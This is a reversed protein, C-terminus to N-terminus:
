EFEGNCEIIRTIFEKPKLENVMILDYNHLLQATNILCYNNRRAVDICERSFSKNRENPPLHRFPNAILIGKKNREKDEVLQIHDMLQRALDVDVLGNSARVEAIFIESKGRIEIDHLGNEEKWDVIYGEDKLMQELLNACEKSLSKGDEYLIKKADELISLRNRADEIENRIVKEISLSISDYWIPKNSISSLQTIQKTFANQLRRMVKSRISTDFNPLFLIRGRGFGIEFAIAENSASRGIVVIEKEEQKQIIADYDVEDFEKLAEYVRTGRVWSVKQGKKAMMLPIKSNSLNGSFRMITKDFGIICLIGGASLFKKLEQWKEVYTRYFSSNSYKVYIIEYDFLTPSSNNTSAYTVNKSNRGFKPLRGIVLTSCKRINSTPIKGGQM